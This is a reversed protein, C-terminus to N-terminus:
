LHTPPPLGCLFSRSCKIGDGVGGGTIQVGTDHFGIAKLSSSAMFMGASPCVGEHVGLGGCSAPLM